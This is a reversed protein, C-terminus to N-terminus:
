DPNQALWDRAAHTDNAIARQLESLSAYKVEGHLRHRLEVSVCRGYANGNFHLVHVELLVRGHDEVSPRVGFSAVGHMPLNINNPDLGWVRVVFIGNAASQAHAFRLNLTPFGLERGLKQGHVVHGSVRYPRGLLRAADTMRGELLAARVASSSVRHKHVEYSMMRAVEFGCAEGAADLTAYDGARKAGFRFDDGVLVYKARLGQLLVRQVFDEPSLSALADNFRLVVVEDVGCQALEVLKDRLTAIRAPAASPTGMKKAFFERPHSEFTVVCAAVGRHQAESKLLAIM